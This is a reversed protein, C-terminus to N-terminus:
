AAPPRSRNILLGRVTWAVGIVIAGIIAVVTVAPSDVVALIAILGGYCISLAILVRASLVPNM